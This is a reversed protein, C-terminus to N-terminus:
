RDSKLLAKLEETPKYQLEARIRDIIARQNEESVQQTFASLLSNRQGFTSAALVDKAFQDPTKLTEGVRCAVFYRSKPLDSLVKTSGLPQKRLDLLSDAFDSSPFRVKERDIEPNKTSQTAPDYAQLALNDLELITHSKEFEKLARMAGSPDKAITAAQTAVEKSLQAAADDALKRAKEFKWATLVRKSMEGNTLDDANKLTNYIKPAIEEISWAFYFPTTGTATTPFRRPIYLQQVSGSTGVAPVETYMASIIDNSGDPQRNAVEFLKSLAPDDIAEYQDKPETMLTSTLNRENLWKVVFATIAQKKEALKAAELKTGNIGAALVAMEREFAELDQRILNTKQEEVLNKKLMQAYFAPPLPKPNLSESTAMAYFPLPSVPALVWQLGYAARMRTDLQFASTRALSAATIVQTLSNTGSLGATLSMIPLPDYVVSDRPSFTWYLDQFLPLSQAQEIEAYATMLALEDGLPAQALTLAAVPPTFGFGTGCAFAGQIMEAHKLLAHAKAFDRKSHDVRTYELALKKGDKFGPTASEPTSIDSRYKKFFDELQRATPLEDVKAVYDKVAVEFLMFDHSSCQDRYYEFFKGPTAYSPLDSAVQSRGASAFMSNTELNGIVSALVARVRFENGIAELIMETNLEPLRTKLRDKIKSEIEGYDAATLLDKGGIADNILTRTAQKSYRIGLQDAKQLALLFDVNGQNDVNSFTEFYRIGRGEGIRSDHVMMKEVKDVMQAAPSKPDLTFKLQLVKIFDSRLSVAQQDFTLYAYRQFSQSAAVNKRSNAKLEVYNAIAARINEPISSGDSFKGSTLKRLIDGAQNVAAADLASLMFQDAVQRELSLKDLDESYIKGGQHEALLKSNANGNGGVLKQVFNMFDYDGGLGSSLVFILMATICLCAFVIKTFRKKPSFLEFPNFAM